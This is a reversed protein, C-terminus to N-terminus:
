NEETSVWSKFECKHSLGFDKIAQLLNKTLHDKFPGAFVVKFNLFKIKSIAVIIRLLNKHKDHRGLVLFFNKRELNIM